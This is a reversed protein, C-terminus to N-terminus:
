KSFRFRLLNDRQSESSKQDLRSTSLNCKLEIRDSSPPPLPPSPSFFPFPPPAYTAFNRFFAPDFRCLFQLATQQLRSVHPIWRRFSSSVVRIFALIRPVMRRFRGTRRTDRGGGRVADRRGTYCGMRQDDRERGGEMGGEM